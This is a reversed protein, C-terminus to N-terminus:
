RFLEISTNVRESMRMGLALAERDDAGGIFFIGVHFSANHLTVGLRAHRDVLIGVTCPTHSQFNANLDQIANVISVHYHDNQHFPLVILPISNDHALNCIPDHMNKYPAINVCPVVNVDSGGHRPNQFYNDFARMIYTTTSHDFSTTWSSSSSVSRPLPRKHINVRQLAPTIQGRLEVLHIAFLCIPYAQHPPNMAEILAMMGRVDGEEHVCCILCFDINRPTNQITRVEKQQLGTITELRAHPKYLIRVLPSTIAADLMVAFVLTAFVEDDM